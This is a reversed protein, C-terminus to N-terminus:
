CGGGVNRVSEFGQDMEGDWEALLTDLEAMDEDFDCALRIGEFPLTPAPPTSDDMYDPHGIIDCRKILFLCAPCAMLHESNGNQRKYRVAKLATEKCKPCTYGNSALEAQTARYHRDKSAWYLARKVFAHSVRSALCGDSALKEPGGPVRVTGEGGPISNNEPLPPRAAIDTVRQIQEVPYWGSGHPYEIDVMGIAPYVAVVRGAVSEDAGFPLALDGVVFEKARQQYDVYTTAQKM